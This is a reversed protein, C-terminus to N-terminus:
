NEHAVGRAALARRGADTPPLGAISSADEFSPGPAGLYSGSVHDADGRAVVGFLAMTLQLWRDPDTTFATRVNDKMEKPLVDNDYTGLTMDTAAVPGIALVAIGESAVEQAFAATFQSLGAKSATYSTYYPM